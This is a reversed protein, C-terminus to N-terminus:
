AVTRSCYLNQDPESIVSVMAPWMLGEVVAEMEV